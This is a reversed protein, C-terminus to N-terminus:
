NLSCSLHFLCFLHPLDVSCTFHISLIPLHFQSHFRKKKPRVVCVNDNYPIRPIFVSADIGYCLQTYQQAGCVLLGVCCRRTDSASKKKNSSSLQRESMKRQSRVSPRALTMRMEKTTSQNSAIKAQTVLTLTKKYITHRPYVSPLTM